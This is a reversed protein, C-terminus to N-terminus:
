KNNETTGDIYNLIWRMKEIPLAMFSLSHGSVFTVRIGGYYLEDLCVFDIDHELITDDDKHFETRGDNSNLLSLLMDNMMSKVEDINNGIHRLLTTNGM